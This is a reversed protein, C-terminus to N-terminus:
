SCTYAQSELEFNVVDKSEGKKFFRFTKLTTLESEKIDSLNAENIMQFDEDSEIFTSSFNPIEKYKNSTARYKELNADYNYSGEKKEVYVDYIKELKNSLFYYKITNNNYKCTLVDYEGEKEILKVEPYTSVPVEEIKFKIM